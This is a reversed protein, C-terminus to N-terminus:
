VAGKPRSRAFGVVNPSRHAQMVYAELLRSLEPDGRKEAAMAVVRLAIQVATNQNRALQDTAAAEIMEEINVELRAKAFAVGGVTARLRLTVTPPANAHAKISYDIVHRSIDEGDVTVVPGSTGHTISIASFKGKKERLSM